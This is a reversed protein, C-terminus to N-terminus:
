ARGEVKVARILSRVAGSVNSGDDYTVGNVTYVNPRENVMTRLANVASTLSDLAERDKLERRQQARDVSMSTESALDVNGNLSFRDIDSMMSYLQGTGNQIESLDFVPTIVPSDVIESSMLDSLMDIPKKAATTVKYVMDKATRNVDSGMALMGKILGEDLSNGLRMWVKSPSNVQAANRAAANADNVIRTAVNRVYSGANSIGDGLGVGLSYGIRKWDDKEDKIEKTADKAVKEASNSVKNSSNDIGKALSLDLDKGNSEFAGGNIYDEININTADMLDTSIGELGPIGNELGQAIQDAGEEGTNLLENNKLFEEMFSNKADTALSTASDNVSSANGEIGAGLGEDMMQGVWEMVTSPSEIGLVSCVKEVIGGVFGDVLELVPTILSAIGQMFGLILNVGAEAFDGVHSLLFDKSQYILIALAAIALAPGLAVGSILATILLAGGLLFQPIHSKIVNLAATFIGSLLNVFVTGFRSAGDAVVDFNNGLNILAEILVYIALSLILFGTGLYILKLGLPGAVAAAAVFIFMAGALAILASGVQEPNVNQFMRIAIGLAIFSASIIAFGIAVIVASAAFKLLTDAIKNLPAELLTMLGVLGGFIIMAGVMAVLGQILDGEAMTGVIRIASALIFLGAAFAIPMALVSVDLKSQLNSLEYAIVAMIALSAMLAGFANLLQDESLSKLKEFAKAIKYLGEAYLIPFLLASLSLKTEIDSLKVAIVVMIGLAGMLAGFANTLQDGGIDKMKSFAKAITYLGDAYLIPFALASLSVKTKFDSLKVAIVAMIALAGLLAGFAHTLENGGIDKLKKFASAIKNLGEAYVVPFALASLSVKTEFSSLKYAIVAMIALAGLLAGFANTLENGGIDKLKEFAKAIDVLGKAYLIPFLLASIDVKTKLDSLKYAIVAMIALSAMLAGFANLIEGDTLGKLKAFAKAIDVLGRAYLIPFLLASLDIKTKFDSLKYAIAAMIILSSMLSGFANLLEHDDFDKLLVFAKAINVLGKAYLIPFLLDSLNVRYELENLREAILFLVGLAGLLVIAGLVIKDNGVDKLIRLAKAIECLGKAFMIPVFIASLSVKTELKSLVGAVFEMVILALSMMTLSTVIKEISIGELKKVAKAMDVFAHAAIIVFAIAELSPNMKAKASIAAIAAYMGIIAGTILFTLVIAQKLGSPKIESLLTIAKAISVFAYAISFIMSANGIKNALKGIEDFMKGLSKPIDAIKNIFDTVADPISKASKFLNSLGIILKYLLFLATVPAIFDITLFDELADKIAGLGKSLTDSISSFDIEKSTDGISKLKDFFDTVAKPMKLENIFDSFGKPMKLNKFFDVLKNITEQFSDGKQFEEKVKSLAEGLLSAKNTIFEFVTGFIFSIAQTFPGYAKMVFNSLATFVIEIVSLVGKLVSIIKNITGESISFSQSFEYIKDAIAAIMEILTEAGSQGDKFFAPLIKGFIASAFEGVVSVISFIGRFIRKIQDLRKEDITFSKLFTTVFGLGGGLKSQITNFDPIVDRFVDLFGDKISNGVLKVNKSVNKIIDLFSLFKGRLGDIIETLREFPSKAENASNVLDELAKKDEESFKSVKSLVDGMGLADAAAQVTAEDYKWTGGALEHIKNVLDQVKQPDEVVESLAKFREAGNGFDGRIVLNALEKLKDVTTGTQSANEEEAGTLKQIAETLLDATLWGKDLTDWFSKEKERMSDIDINHDKAVQKLVKKFSKLGAESLGLGKIADKGVSPFLFSNVKDLFPNIKGFIKDVDIKDIYSGAIELGKIVTKDFLNALPDLQDRIEALKDKVTNFFKVLPGEQEVLPQIFKAGIQSFRANVNSLVGTLTKNADKAHAGFKESMAASFLEFTIVGKRTLNTIDGETVKAGKTLDAILKKVSDSAEISGDNVKNFYDAIVATANIGRTSLQLYDNSMVKGYSSIQSFIQAIGQYDSSTTAALGAIGALAKELDEGAEVGSAVLNSAALAAEDLGYATENVSEQAIGMIRDVEKTDSILGSLLFRAKEINLARNKGGEYIKNFVTELARELARLAGTILGEISRTLDQIVTMGAIGLASFRSEINYISEALKSFSVKTSAVEIETFAKEHGKFQLAQKLKELTGLSTQVNTEFSKNDFRLVAVNEDITRGM